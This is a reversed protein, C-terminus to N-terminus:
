EDEESLVSQPPGVFVVSINICKKEVVWTLTASEIFMNIYGLETLDPLFESLDQQVPIETDEGDDDEFFEFAQVIDTPFECEDYLVVGSLNVRVFDYGIDQIFDGDFRNVVSNNRRIQPPIISINSHYIDFTKGNGQFTIIGLSQTEGFENSFVAEVEGWEAWKQGNEVISFICVDDITFYGMGDYVDSFILQGRGVRQAVGNRSSWANYNDIETNKMQARVTIKISKRLPGSENDFKFVDEIAYDLRTLHFVAGDVSGASSSSSDTYEEFRLHSM